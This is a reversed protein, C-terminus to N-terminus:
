YVKYYNNINKQIQNRIDNPLEYPHAIVEFIYGNFMQNGALRAGITNTANSIIFSDANVSGYETNNLRSFVRLGGDSYASFINLNTNAAGMNIATASAMYGFYFINSSIFPLYMRPPDLSYNYAMGSLANAACVVSFYFRNRIYTFNDVGDLFQLSGDFLIGIINNKSDITGSNVIRPQRGTNTQTVNRNYGSQDYWISVFGSGSGVFEILANTNLIGNGDFYIDRVANDSSRRVRICPGTYLANLKRLSYAVSYENTKKILFDKKFIEGQLGSYMGDDLGNYLGNVIGSNNYNQLGNM